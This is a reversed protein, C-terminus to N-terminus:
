ITGKVWSLTTNFLTAYKSISNYNGSLLSIFSGLGTAELGNMILVIFTSYLLICEPTLFIYSAIYLIAFVVTIAYFSSYNKANTILTDFYDDGYYTPAKPINFASFNIIGIVM